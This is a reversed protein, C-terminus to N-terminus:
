EDNLTHQMSQLRHNDREEELFDLFYIILGHM